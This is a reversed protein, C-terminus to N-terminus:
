VQDELGYIVVYNLETLKGPELPEATKLWLAALPKDWEFPEGAEIPVWSASDDTDGGDLSVLLTGAGMNKVVVPRALLAGVLLDVTNAGTAPSAIGVITRTQARNLDKYGM